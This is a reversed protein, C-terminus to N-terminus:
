RPHHCFFAAPTPAPLKDSSHRDASFLTCSASVSPSLTPVFPRPSPPTGICPWCVPFPSVVVQRCCRRLSQSGSAALRSAERHHAYSPCREAFAFCLHYSLFGLFFLNVPCCYNPSPSPFGHRDDRWAWAEYRIATNLVGKEGLVQTLFLQTAPQQGAAPNALASPYPLIGLM